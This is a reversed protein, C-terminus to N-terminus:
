GDYYFHVNDPLPQYEPPFYPGKHELFKWKVGDEYKEEEWRVFLFHSIAGSQMKHKLKHTTTIPAPWNSLFLSTNELWRWRSKEEEEKKKIKLQRAEEIEEKTKKPKKSVAQEGEEEEKKTKRKKTSSSTLPFCLM